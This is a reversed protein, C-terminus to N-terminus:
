SEGLVSRAAVLAAENRDMKEAARADGDHLWRPYAGLAQPCAEALERLADELVRVRAHAAMHADANRQSVRGIVENEDWAELLADCLQRVVGSPISWEQWREVTERDM